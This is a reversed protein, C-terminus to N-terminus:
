SELKSEFYFQKILSFRIVSRKGESKFDRDSWSSTRRERLDPGAFVLLLCLLCDGVLNVLKVFIIIFIQIFYSLCEVHFPCM